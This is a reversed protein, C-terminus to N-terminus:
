NLLGTSDGDNEFMEKWRERPDEFEVDDLDFEEPDFSGVLSKSLAVYIEHQPNSTVELFREYGDPGGCDELPCAREGALCRPLPVNEERPLIKELFVDHQWDDGLDYVYRVHRNSLTLLDAVPVDWGPVIEAEDDFEDGPIGLRIADGSVPLEVQFEHLHSDTWGMADQIAVHLDWFTYDSPVQIRRWVPPEIERLTVKIQLVHDFDPPM